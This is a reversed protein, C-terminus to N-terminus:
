RIIGGGDIEDDLTDTISGGDIFDYYEWDIISNGDFFFPIPTVSPTVTPTPTVTTTPSITVTPTVSPTPTLTPTVTPTVTPSITVTPTITTTPTVSPTVSPTPTPTRTQTPTPTPTRTQTPTVTPTVTVAFPEECHTYTVNFILLNVYGNVPRGFNLKIVDESLITLDYDKVIEDGVIVEILFYRSKMNHPIVWESKNDLFGYQYGCFGQDVKNRVVFKGKKSEKFLPIYM